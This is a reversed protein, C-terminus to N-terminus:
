KKKRLLWKPKHFFKNKQKEPKDDKGHRRWIFFIAIGLILLFLIYVGFKGKESDLVAEGTIGLGGDVGLIISKKIFNNIDNSFAFYIFYFGKKLDEPLQMEINREILGDRNIPSKDVIRMLETGNESSLWIEVDINEGVFKSSDLVYNIKLVDEEQKIDKIEILSFEKPISISIDQIDSAEECKIELSGKNIESVVEEPVNLDFVFDVSQGPAIGEINTSYIWSSIDGKAILRCKNLFVKGINKVILPIKKNEGPTAIINGILSVQLKGTQNPLIYSGGGGGGGSSGGSSPIVITSTDVSFILNASNFNGASDNVYFNFVFNADVTVDFSASNASCDVSTNGVELNEGRYVNYLCNVPSADSVSWSASVTRSTKTGTPQMLSVSPIITDVYFTKNGNFASNGVDDVCRINWLYTGDNLNLNFINASGSIPSSDTQNLSFIGTFNGWLECYDLDIDIPTYSFEISQGNNLYDDIPSNLIITPSGVIVSFSVSDSSVLGLSDNAYINLIYDGNEAVSFTNNACDELTINNGNNLNYWCSQLNNESDSVSYDLALGENYGYATGEQPSAISVLPASNLITYDVNVSSLVPTISSDPSTFDVKYQFYRNNDLSLDKPSTDSIDIWSEGSCLSDDCSKVQIDFSTGPIEAYIYDFEDRPDTGSGIGEGLWIAKTSNEINLIINYWDGTISSVTFTGLSNSGSSDSQMYIGTTIGKSVKAYNKLITGNILNESFNIYFRKSSDKMDASYYVSDLVFVESVNLGLHTAYAIYSNSNEKIQSTWSINNWSANNGADFVKSIYSGTLNNGALVVASGNYYTNTYTGLDFETQNGQEYVAFGTLRNNFFLLIVILSVLVGGIIAYKGLDRKELM